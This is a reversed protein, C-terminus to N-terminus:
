GLQIWLWLESLVTMTDGAVHDLRGVDEVAAGVESVCGLLSGQSDMLLVLMLFYCQCRMWLWLSALNADQQRMEFWLFLLSWDLDYYRPSLFSKDPIHDDDLLGLACFFGCGLASGLVVVGAAIIFDVPVSWWWWGILQM